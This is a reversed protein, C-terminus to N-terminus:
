ESVLSKRELMFKVHLLRRDTAYDSPIMVGSSSELSRPEGFDIVKWETGMEDIFSECDNARINHENLKYQTIQAYAHFQDIIEFTSCKIKKIIKRSSKLKVDLYIVKVTDYRSQYTEKFYIKPTKPLKSEKDTSTEEHSSDLKRHSSM